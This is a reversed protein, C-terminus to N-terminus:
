SICLQIKKHTLADYGDFGIDQEYTNWLYKHNISSYNKKKQRKLVAGAAYPPEGALARIPATAEPRGWLWLLAPDWSCRRDVGCSM